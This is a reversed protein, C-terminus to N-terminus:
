RISDPLTLGEDGTKLRTKITELQTRISGDYVVSGIKTMVGGIISPDTKFQFLIKKGTIQELRAALKTREPDAIPAASVVEAPVIGRRKNIARRFQDDVLGLHHLRYHSLLLRLLNVITASPHTREIISELVKRKDAKTIVPSAFLDRIEPSGAFMRAFEGLEQEVLDTDQQAISVDALAEAYRRAVATFSM